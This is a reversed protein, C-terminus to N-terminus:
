NYQRQEYVQPQLCIGCLVVKPDPFHLCHYSDDEVQKFPRTTFNGEGGTVQEREPGPSCRGILEEFDREGNTVKGSLGHFPLGKAVEEDGEVTRKKCLKTPLAGGGSGASGWAM